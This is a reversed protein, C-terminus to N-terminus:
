IYFYNYILYPARGPRIAAFNGGGLSQQKALM